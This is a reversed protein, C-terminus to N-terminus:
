CSSYWLIAHLMTSISGLAYQGSHLAASDHTYGIEGKVCHLPVPMAERQPCATSQM